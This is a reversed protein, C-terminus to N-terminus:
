VEFRVHGFLLDKVTQTLAMTTNTDRLERSYEGMKEKTVNPNNQSANNQYLAYVAQVTAEQVDEPVTAQGATYVITINQYGRPFYTFSSTNSEAFGIRGTSADSTFSGTAISTSTTNEQITVSTLATLGVQRLQIVPLGNGDLVDTYSQQTFDNDCYKAIMASAAGILDTLIASSVNSLAKNQQARAVTVYQKAM